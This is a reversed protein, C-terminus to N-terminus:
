LLVIERCLILTGLTDMKRLNKHVYSITKCKLLKKISIEKNVSDEKGGGGGGGGVCVGCVCVCWLKWCSCQHDSRCEAEYGGTAWYM